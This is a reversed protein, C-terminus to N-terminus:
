SSMAITSAERPRPLCADEAQATVRASLGCLGSRVNLQVVGVYVRTGLCNEPTRRRLNWSHSSPRHMNKAENKAEENEYLIANLEKTGWKERM